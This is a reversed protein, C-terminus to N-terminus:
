KVLLKRERTGRTNYRIGSVDIICGFKFTSAYLNQPRYENETIENRTKSGYEIGKKNQKWNWYNDVFSRLQSNEFM